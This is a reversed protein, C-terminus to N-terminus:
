GAAAQALLAGIQARAQVSAAQMPTRLEGTCLDLQALAAKIVAPNPESFLCDIQPLLRYFLSRAQVLDGLAVLDLLKVYSAPNVHAAATIAGTAGLCAAALINRDEGALVNLRGDAILQMSLMESGGCDKVAVIRPHDYLARFTALEMAVGTRYPINYLILPVSSADAIATYYAILGAQSPRIYYPAPILLGAIPRQLIERQLALVHGMHNGALGMVVPCDPVAQLVADLVAIKEADSLAAAEGTSGCVVLGAIGSQHLHRALKRLAPFDIENQRFPTVIPVWIGAFRTQM